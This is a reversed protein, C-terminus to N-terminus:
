RRQKIKQRMFEVVLLHKFAMWEDFLEPWSHYHFSGDNKGIRLLSYREIKEDPHHYDWLYGYAAIQLLYDNYVGNSTKLDVIARTRKGRVSIAAIDLTGGFALEMGDIEIPAVLSNETAIVTFDKEDRFDLWGEFAVKAHAVHEPLYKSEDFPHGHIACEVMEHAITGIDAAKDRAEYLPLGAKGQNYAWGMLAGKNWALNQGLITTVGPVRHGKHKYPQTPM